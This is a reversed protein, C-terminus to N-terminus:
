IVLPNKRGVFTPVPSTNWPGTGIPPDDRETNLPVSDSPVHDSHATSSETFPCAPLTTPPQSIVNWTQGVSEGVGVGVADGVGDGSFQEEVPKKSRVKSVSPLSVVDTRPKFSSAYETAM